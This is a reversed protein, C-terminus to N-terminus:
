PNRLRRKQQPTIGIRDAWDGNTFAQLAQQRVRNQVKDLAAMMIQGDNVRRPYGRKDLGM